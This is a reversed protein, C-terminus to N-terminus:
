APLLKGPNMRDTPDFARKIARLMDQQVDPMTRGLEGRKLQGIGHEASISGGMDMVIKHIIENAKERNALFTEKQMGVPQSLNFHINGDGVHGFPVPRIGPMWDTIAQTAADIFDPINSVSVSIDHKISGGEPKQAESMAHRIHWLNAAQQESQSVIVDRLGDVRRLAAELPDMLACTDSDGSHHELEFLIYWPHIDEFPDNSHPAHKCCFAMGIRPLLEAAVLRTGFSKQLAHMAILANHPTEIACMVVTHSQPQPFLKLVAKTILGITGESGIFIHKLDYGTNDKRLGKLNSWVRGDPLVVELGLILDRMNGYRLVHIGGANTAINGGIRCSGESALSLPFLRHVQAAAAKADALICGAEVAMTNNLPDMDIVQTMRDVSIIVQQGTENPMAGGCLGTHGGQPVMEIDATACACVMLAAMETTSPRLIALPHGHWLGRWDTIYPKFAESTTLVHPEGFKQFLEDIVNSKTKAITNSM